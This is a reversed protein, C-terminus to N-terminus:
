SSNWKVRLNKSKMKSNLGKVKKQNIEDIANSIVNSGEEVEASLSELKAQLSPDKLISLTKQFKHIQGNIEKLEFQM